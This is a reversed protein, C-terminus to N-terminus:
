SPEDTKVGFLDNMAAFTAQDLVWKLDKHSCNTKVCIAADCELLIVVKDAKEVSALADM